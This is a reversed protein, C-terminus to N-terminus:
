NRYIRFSSRTYKKPILRISQVRRIYYGTQSIFGDNSLNYQINSLSVLNRIGSDVAGTSSNNIQISSSAILAHIQSLTSTSSNDTQVTASGLLLHAQTIAGTNTTNNIATSTSVLIQDQTIAVSSSNDTQTSNAGVLTTSGVLSGTSSNDTQTTTDGVLQHIQSISGTSSLDQQLSSTGVLTYILSISSTSSNNAINTTAASLIQAQTITGVSSSNAQSCPAQALIHDQNIQDSSSNDQQDAGTSYLIHTQTIFNISCSDTQTTTTAVLVQTQTITGTSSNNAQTTADGVLGNGTVIIADSSSNNNQSSNAGSLVHLQTISNTSSVNGQVNVVVNGASFDDLIASDSWIGVAGSTYTSDVVTGALINDVYVFITSGIIEATLAANGTTDNAFNNVYITKLLVGDLNADDFNAVNDCRRIVIRDLTIDNDRLIAITYGSFSDGPSARLLIGAGKGSGSSAVNRFNIRGYQNNDFVANYVNGVGPATGGLVFNSTGIELSGTQNDAPVWPSTLVGAARNFSDSYLLIKTNVNLLYNQIVSNTSSNNIQSSSSEGLVHIQTITSTSSFNDQSSNTGILDLSAGLDIIGNSSNASNFSTEGINGAAYNNSLAGAGSTFSICPVGSSYENDTTQLIQTGNVYATLTNGLIELRVRDNAVPTVSSIILDVSTSATNYKTIRYPTGGNGTRLVYGQELGVQSTQIRVAVGSSFSGSPDIQKLDIEAYQDPTYALGPYWALSRGGGGRLDNGSMRITADGQQVWPAVLTSGTGDASTFTKSILQVTSGTLVHNQVISPTNSSNVQTNNTSVLTIPQVIADQSSLNNQISNASFLNVVGSIIIADISSGNSQVTTAGSLLHVQTIASHESLNNQTTTAVTLNSPTIELVLFGDYGESAPSNDGVELAKDIASIKHPFFKPIYQFSM